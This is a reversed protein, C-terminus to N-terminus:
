LDGTLEPFDRPRGAVNCTEEKQLLELAGSVLLGGAEPAMRSSQTFTTEYGGRAFAERHPVYGVMGNAYGVVLAHRPYAGQKIRLGLEVFCECPLSVFAYGDVFHVQVEAPQSGRERIRRVLDPMTRDYIGTDVFRQAGFTTGRIEAETPERYPLSITRSRSELRLAKRFDMRSLVDSVDDALRRGVEEMSMDAGGAAPNATHINGCAGNLFLTVGADREKMTKALVGPYGASFATGGGHHTPHCAFNVISGLIRGDKGRAALVAVESDIPGEVYLANSDAFTGHTRVTGNRMVVRRNHAVGFESCSGFGVEAEQIADLAQGFASVVRKELEAIYADDRSVEGCNAIAPGAHNHTAAVMIRGAPFGFAAAVKHRIANTQTWRVSLTDLQVFALSQGESELVAVRACLPDLITDAVINKLWGIKRTGLPPTIDVEAFGARLGM